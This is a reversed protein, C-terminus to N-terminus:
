TDTALQDLKNLTQSSESTHTLQYHRAWDVLMDQNKQLDALNSIHTARFDAKTDKKCERAIILMRRLWEEGKDKARMMNYGAHSNWQDRKCPLGMIEEWLEYARETLPHGGRVKGDKDVVRLKQKTEKSVFEKKGVNEEINKGISGMKPPRVERNPLDSIGMEPPRVEENRSSETRNRKLWVGYNVDAVYMKGRGTNKVCIINGKKELLRKANQVAKTKLGLYEATAEAGEFFVEFYCIRAYVVKEVLSLTKDCLIDENIISIRNRKQEENGVRKGGRRKIKVVRM